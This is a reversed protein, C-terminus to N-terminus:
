LKTNKSLLWKGQPVVHCSPGNAGRERWLLLSGRDHRRSLEPSGPEDASWRFQEGKLLLSKPRPICCVLKVLRGGKLSEAKHQWMTGWWGGEISFGYCSWHSQAAVVITWKLCSETSVYFLFISLGVCGKTIIYGQLLRLCFSPGDEHVLMIECSLVLVVRTGSESQVSGLPPIRSWTQVYCHTDKWVKCLRIANNFAQARTYFHVAQKIEDQSEYQRALHYSAAWNGTENAIEAAQLPFWM